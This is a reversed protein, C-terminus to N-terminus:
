VRDLARGNLLRDPHIVASRWVLCCGWRRAFAARPQAGRRACGDKELVPRSIVEFEPHRVLTAITRGLEPWRITPGLRAVLCKVNIV